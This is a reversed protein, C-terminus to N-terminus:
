IKLVTQIILMIKEGWGKNNDLLEEITKKMQAVPDENPHNEWIDTISKPAVEWLLGNMGLLHFVTAVIKQHQLTSIQSLVPARIRFSEHIKKRQHISREENTQFFIDTHIRGNRHQHITSSSYLTHIPDCLDCGRRWAESDLPLECQPCAKNNGCASRRNLGSFVDDVDVTVNNKFFHREDTAQVMWNLCAVPRSLLRLM